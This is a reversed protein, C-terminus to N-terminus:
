LTSPAPALSQTFAAAQAPAPPASSKFNLETISKPTDSGSPAPAAPWGLAATIKDYTQRTAGEVTLCHEGLCRVFVSGTDTDFQFFNSEPRRFLNTRKAYKKELAESYVGFFHAADEPSDLELRMILATNKTKSEEFLAYRDGAWSPSVSDAIQEDLFQKLVEGFGFEGLVNEELLNWDDPVVGKWAPFKVERPNVGKLYLDPHLIQQTSVPPNEFILKLDQWGAHAKLFQQSFDTGALYPFLLEDQIYKPAKSLEPDKSMESVAGSRILATVDPLDRVGVKEDRLTYDVMAALASGESVSDRALEADDNPRAAKIWPDIHFSQDELAHTLEHAMVPRQEDAPIWDAIYFEKGKPDYLGAVQDTLLDLMFSDLPFNKPILGFAELAKDDAYRQTDTRDEKEERILYDRIEQKSRLSKKLPEKIPLDLIQSMQVLVEDAAQIFDAKSTASSPATSSGTSAPPVPAAQQALAVPTVLIGLFLGLLRKM